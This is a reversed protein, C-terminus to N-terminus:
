ANIKVRWIFSDTYNPTPGLSDVNVLDGTCNRLVNLNSFM